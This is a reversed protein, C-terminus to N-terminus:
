LRERSSPSLLDRLALRDIKGIETRPLQQVVIVRSVRELGTLSADLTRQYHATLNVGEVFAVFEHGRRPETLALLSAPCELTECVRSEVSSVSVLEGLVKVLDDARGLHRLKGEDIECSDGTLFWGADDRASDFSWAGGELTAYGAFLPAGRILLRNETTLKTEWGPLLSLWNTEGVAGTAIQSSAETMGYSPFIPWGLDGARGALKPDIRGGGLLLGKLAKPSEVRHEVLDHLHTPTLSTWAAASDTLAKVFPRGDRKWPANEFVTVSAGLVFARAYIGLGGVHYDSLGALWSDEQTLRLHNVVARASALLATKPLVVFKPAGSSGSTAMVVAGEVGIQEQLFDVLGDVEFNRRPNLRLDIESSEWYDATALLPKEM